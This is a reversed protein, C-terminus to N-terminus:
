KKPPKPAAQQEARYERVAWRLFHNVVETRSYGTSQGIEDIAQVLKQPIRLSTTVPPGEDEKPPLIRSVQM